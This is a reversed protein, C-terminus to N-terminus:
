RATHGSCAAAQQLAIEPLGIQARAAAHDRGATLIDIRGLGVHRRHDVVNELTQRERQLEAAHRQQERQQNRKRDANGASQMLVAPLVCSAKATCDSNTDIGFKQSAM